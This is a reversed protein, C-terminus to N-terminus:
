NAYIQEIHMFHNVFSLNINEALRCHFCLLYSHEDGAGLIKSCEFLLGFNTLTSPTPHCRSDTSFSVCLVKPNDLVTEIIIEDIETLVTTGLNPPLNKKNVNGTATSLAVTRCVTSSDFGLNEGVERYSKGQATNWRKWRPNHTASSNDPDKCTRRQWKYHLIFCCVQPSM